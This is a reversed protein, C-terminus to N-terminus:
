EGYWSGVTGGIIPAAIGRVKGGFGRQKKAIENFRQMNISSRPVNKFPSQGPLRIARPSAGVPVNGVEKFDAGPAGKVLSPARMRNYAANLGTGTVAGVAAGGLSGPGHGFFAKAANAPDSHNILLDGAAQTRRGVPSDAIGQGLEKVKKGAQELLSPEASPAAEGGGGGGGAAAPPNTLAELAKQADEASARPNTQRHHAIFGEPEAKAAAATDGDYVADRVKNFHTAQESFDSPMAGFASQLGHYGATGAGGLTGGLLAGRAMGGLPDRRRRGSVLESLGGLGAGAAAGIGANRLSQWGVDKWYNPDSPAGPSRGLNQILTNIQERWDAQKAFGGVQRSAIARCTLLEAAHEANQVEPFSQVM